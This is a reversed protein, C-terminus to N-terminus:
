PLLPLALDDFKLTTPDIARGSIRAPDGQPLARAPADPNEIRWAILVALARRQADADAAAARLAPLAPEGLAVLAATAFAADNFASNDGLSEILVACAKPALKELRAACVIGASLLRQQRDTSQIGEALQSEAAAAHKSLFSLGNRANCVYTYAPIAADVPLSDDRLGEICVRFMADTPEAIDLELLANAAMQRQQFDPSALAAVLPPRAVSPALSGLVHLAETANWRTGDHRLDALCAAAAERQAAESLLVPRYRVYPSGAEWPGFARRQWGYRVSNPTWSGLTNHISLLAWTPMVRVWRGTRVEYYGRIALAVLLCVAALRGWALRQSNRRRQRPRTVGGCEPCRKEDTEGLRPLGALDYGCRAGAVWDTPRWWRRRPGPCHEGTRRRGYFWWVLVLLGAAAALGLPLHWYVATRIGPTM